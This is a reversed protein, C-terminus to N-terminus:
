EYCLSNYDHTVTCLFFVYHRECLFSYYESFITPFKYSKRHMRREFQERSKKDTHPSRLVTFRSRTTPLSGVGKKYFLMFKFFEVSAIYSGLFLGYMDSLLMYVSRTYNIHLHLFANYSIVSSGITDYSLFTSLSLKIADVFYRGHPHKRLLMCAFVYKLTQARLQIIKNLYLQLEVADRLCHEALARINSKKYSCISLYDNSKYFLKNSM